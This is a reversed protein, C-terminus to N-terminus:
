LSAAARQVVAGQAALAGFVAAGDVDLESDSDSDGDGNTDGDGSSDADIVYAAHVDLSTGFLDDTSEAVVHQMALHGDWYYGDMHGELLLEALKAKKKSTFGSRMVKSTETTTRLILVVAM